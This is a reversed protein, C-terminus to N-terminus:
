QITPKWEDKLACLFYFILSMNNLRKTYKTKLGKVTSMKLEQQDEM